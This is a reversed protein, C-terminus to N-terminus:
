SSLEVVLDITCLLYSNDFRGFNKVSICHCLMEAQIPRGTDCKFFRNQDLESANGECTPEDGSWQGSDQCTRVNAVNNRIRFGTNCTYSATNGVTTGTLIVQGDTPDNLNGCDATITIPM